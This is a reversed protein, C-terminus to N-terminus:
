LRSQNYVGESNQSVFEAGFLGKVKSSAKTRNQSDKQLSTVGADGNDDINPFPQAVKPADPVIL